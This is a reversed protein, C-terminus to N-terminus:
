LRTFHVGRVAVYLAYAWEKVRLRVARWGTIHAESAVGGIEVGEFVSSFIVLARPLHFPDTVIIASRCKRDRVLLLSYYANGVTTRSREELIIREKPVGAQRAARAMFEAESPKGRVTQAGSCLLYKARRQKFVQAARQARMRMNREAFTNRPKCGLCIVVDVM